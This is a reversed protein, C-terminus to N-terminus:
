GNPDTTVAVVKFLLNPRRCIALPNSQSKLEIGEGHDLIKPSTFIPMGRQNILNINYPPADYVRFTERTGTPYGYGCKAEIGRLVGDMGQTQQQLPGALPTTPWQANYEVFTVSGFTFKKRLDGQFSSATPNQLFYSKVNAHSTLASFFEPSVLIEVNNMVEGHLNLEVYRSIEYTYERVPFTPDYLNFTFVQQTVEFSTYYDALLRLKGDYVKGKLAGLRLYERLMDFKFKIKELRRTMEDQMTRRRKMVADGPVFAFRDEIDKPTIKDITPFHPCKFFKAQEEDGADSQPTSGREASALLSLYGDRYDIEVVQSDHGIDEFVNSDGLYGWQNPLVNISSTLGVATYPFIIPSGAATNGVPFDAM